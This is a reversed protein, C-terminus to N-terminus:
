RWARDQDAVSCKKHEAAAASPRLRGAFWLAKLLNKASRSGISEWNMQAWGSQGAVGLRSAM